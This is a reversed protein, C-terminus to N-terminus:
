KWSSKERIDTVIGAQNQFNGSRKEYTMEPLASMHSFAIQAIPRGPDIMVAENSANYLTLTLQGRFGSDVLGFSGLIGRRCFSSKLWIQGVLGPIIWLEERTSVWFLTKPPVANDSGKEGQIRLEGITLDYGNPTLQEPRFNSVILEGNSVMSKIERDSIM